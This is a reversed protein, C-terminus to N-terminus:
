NILATGTGKRYRQGGALCSDSSAPAKDKATAKMKFKFNEIQFEQGGLAPPAACNLGPLFAQSVLSLAFRWRKRLRMRALRKFKRQARGVELVM